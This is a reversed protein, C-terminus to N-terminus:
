NGAANGCCRLYIHILSLAVVAGCIEPFPYTCEKQKPDIVADAPPLLEGSEDTPVEHHDTVVVTMGYSKALAIQQRASIGNDCTLITDVQRKYVDKDGARSGM